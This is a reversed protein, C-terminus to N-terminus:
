SFTIVKAEQLTLSKASLEEAEIAQRLRDSFFIRDELQPDHWLDVGKAAEARVGLVDPIEFPRWPAGPRPTDSGWPTVQRLNESAEPILTPKAEGIHLIYYTGDFPTGKSEMLTVPLLRTKGLDFRALVDKLRESVVIMAGCVKFADQSSQPLLVVRAGSALVKPEFAPAIEDYPTRAKYANYYQIPMDNVSLDATSVDTLIRSYWIRAPRPNNM